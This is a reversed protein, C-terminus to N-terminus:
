VRTMKGGRLLEVLIDPDSVELQELLESPPSFYSGAAPSVMQM